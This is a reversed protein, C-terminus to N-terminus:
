NSINFQLYFIFLLPTVLQNIHAMTKKITATTAPIKPNPNIEPTEKVIALHNAIIKM